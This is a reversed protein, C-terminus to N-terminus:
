ARSGPNAHYAGRVRRGDGINEYSVRRTAGETQRPASYLTYRSIQFVIGILAMVFVVSSGGQSILPLTIGKLPLVGLMAGINMVAQVALWTFIGVVALRSYDDPAREM